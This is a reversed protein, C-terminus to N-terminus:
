GVATSVTGAKLTYVIRSKYFVITKWGGKCKACKTGASLRSYFNKTLMLRLNEVHRSSSDEQLFDGAEAKFKAVQAEIERIAAEEDLAKKQSKKSYKITDDVDEDDNDSLQLSDKLQQAQTLLGYRLLELQGTLLAKSSDLIFLCVNLYHNM